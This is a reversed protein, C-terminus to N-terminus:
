AYPNLGNAAFINLLTTLKNPDFGVGFAPVGYLMIYYSFVPAMTFTKTITLQGSTTSIAAKENKNSLIDNINTQLSINQVNLETNQYYLSYGNIASTLAEQVIKFLFSLNVNSAKKQLDTMNNLLQLYADLDTPIKAYDKNQMNRTYSAEITNLTQLVAAPFQLAPNLNAGATVSTFLSKSSINSTSATSLLSRSYNVSTVSM